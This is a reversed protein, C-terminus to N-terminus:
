ALPVKIRLRGLLSQVSTLSVQQELRRSMTADPPSVSLSTDTGCHRVSENLQQQFEQGLCIDEGAPSKTLANQVSARIGRQQDLRDRVIALQSLLADVSHSSEPKLQPGATMVTQLVEDHLDRSVRIRERRAAAEEAQVRPGPRDLEVAVCSAVIETLSL